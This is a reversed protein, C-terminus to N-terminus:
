LAKPNELTCPYRPPIWGEFIWWIGENQAPKALKKFNACVFLSLRSKLSSTISAVSNKNTIRLVLEVQNWPSTFPM